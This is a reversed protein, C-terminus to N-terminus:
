LMNDDWDTDQESDDTAFSVLSISFLSSGLPNKRPRGRRRKPMGNIDFAPAPQQQQKHKKQSAKKMAKM